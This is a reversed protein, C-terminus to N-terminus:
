APEGWKLTEEIPGVGDTAAATTLILERLALLKPQIETPLALFARLVDENEITAAATSM